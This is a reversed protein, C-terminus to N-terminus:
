CTKVTTQLRQGEHGLIVTTQTCSVGAPCHLALLPPADTANTVKSVDQNQAKANNRLLSFMEPVKLLHCLFFFSLISLMILTQMLYTKINQKRTPPFYNTALQHQNVSEKSALYYLDCELRGYLHKLLLLFSPFLFFLFFTQVTIIM